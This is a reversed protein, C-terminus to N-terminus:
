RSWRGYIVVAAKRIIRYRGDVSMAGGGGSRWKRSRSSLSFSENTSPHSSHLPCLPSSLIWLILRIIRNSSVFRVVKTKKKVFLFELRIERSDVLQSYSLCSTQELTRTHTSRTVVSRLLFGCGSNWGYEIRAPRYRRYWRTDNRSSRSDFYKKVCGLLRFSLTICKESDIWRKTITEKVTGEKERWVDGFSWRTPIWTPPSNYFTLLRSSTLRSIHNSQRIILQKWSSTVNLRFSFM